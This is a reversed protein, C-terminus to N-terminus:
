DALEGPITHRVPRFAPLVGNRCARLVFTHGFFAAFAGLFGHLLILMTLIIAGVDENLGFLQGGSRILKMYVALLKWGALLGQTLFPHVLSYSVAVAGAAVYRGRSPVSKWLVLEILGAQILIGMAAYLAAGGVFLFKIFASNVALFLTSGRAGTMHRGAIVFLMGVSMMVAGTFPVTLAHLLTGLQTELIGWAAGLLALFVLQRTM